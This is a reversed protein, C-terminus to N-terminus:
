KVVLYYKKKFKIGLQSEKIENKPKDDISIVKGSANVKKVFLKNNLILDIIDKIKLDIFNQNDCSFKMGNFTKIIIPICFCRKEGITHNFCRVVTKKPNIKKEYFQIIYNSLEIMKELPIKDLLDNYSKNDSSEENEYKIESINLLDLKNNNILNKNQNSTSSKQSEIKNQEINEFDYNYFDNTKDNIQNLGYLDGQSSDEDKEEM